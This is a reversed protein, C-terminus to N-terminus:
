LTDKCEKHFSKLKELDTPDTYDKDNVSWIRHYLQIYGYLLLSLYYSSQKTNLTGFYRSNGSIDQENYRYHVCQSASIFCWFLSIGMLASSLPVNMM